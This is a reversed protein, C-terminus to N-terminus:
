FGFRSARRVLARLRPELPWYLTRLTDPRLPKRLVPKAHSFERWSYVGHYAGMGSAGVGGFPLSRAAVHALAIDVSVAGSSTRAIFRRETARSATFVYFALPKEGENIFSIAADVDQVPIVPLIPGFIEERMVSPLADHSTATPLVMVSPEIYLDQRDYQGGVRIDGDELYSVLRDFHKSNVIRGYDASVSPDSGFQAYISRKLAAVLPAVTDATTLIYDPAICTQGANMFKAWALRSAVGDLRAEADGAGRMRRMGRMMSVGRRPGHSEGVDVWAPSKGGLELTLPTLHEAAARMVVRAVNGNGTYVIHDFRHALLETTEAVGGEVIRVAEADVYRPLLRAMAASTHPALESPKLIATNGAALVGALPSLLLQLPYNWPAIILIVGLPESVIAARAPQLLAPPLVRKPRAWRSLNRLQDRVEGVVVGIETLQAESASKRLDAHLAREFEDGAERLMRILGRLQRRRWALTRTAGTDFRKRAAQVHATISATRAFPSGAADRADQSATDGTRLQDM